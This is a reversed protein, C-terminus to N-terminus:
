QIVLNGTVVWIALVYIIALVSIGLGCLMACKFANYTTSPYCGCSGTVVMGVLSVIVVLAGAGAIREIM